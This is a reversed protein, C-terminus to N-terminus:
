GWGREQSSSSLLDHEMLPTRRRKWRIELESPSLELLLLMVSPDPHDSNLDPNQMEWDPSRPYNM